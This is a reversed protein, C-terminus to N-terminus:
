AARHEKIVEYARQLGDVAGLCYGLVWARHFCVKDTTMDYLAKVGPDRALAIAFAAEAKARYEDLSM